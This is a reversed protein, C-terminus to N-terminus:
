VAIDSFRLFKLKAIAQFSLNFKVILVIAKPSVKITQERDLKPSRM